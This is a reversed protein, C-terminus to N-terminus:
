FRRRRSMRSTRSSISLPRSSSTFGGGGGGDGLRTAPQDPSNRSPPVVHARKGRTDGSACHSAKATSSSPADSTPTISSLYPTQHTSVRLRERPQTWLTQQDASEVCM